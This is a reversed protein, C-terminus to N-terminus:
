IGPYIGVKWLGILEQHIFDVGAGKGRIIIKKEGLHMM